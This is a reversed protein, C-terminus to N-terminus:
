YICPYSFRAAQFGNSDVWSLLIAYWHALVFALAYQRGALLVTGYCYMDFARLFIGVTPRSQTNSLSTSSLSASYCSCVRAIIKFCVEELVSWLGICAIQQKVGCYFTCFLKFKKWEM